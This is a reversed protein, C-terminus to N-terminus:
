EGVMEELLKDGDAVFVYNAIDVDWQQKQKLRKWFEQMVEAKYRLVLKGAEIKYHERESELLESHFKLSNAAGRMAMLEIKLEENEKRLENVLDILESTNLTKDM